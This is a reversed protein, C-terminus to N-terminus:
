DAPRMTVGGLRIRRLGGIARTGAIITDAGCHLAERMLREAPDGHGLIHCDSVLGADRLPQFWDGALGQARKHQETTSPGIGAPIEPVYAVTVRAGLRTATAATWTVAAAAGASGDVAVLMHVPSSESNWSPVVALPGQIHHALYVATSGGVLDDFEHHEHRGVIILEVDRKTAESLLAPGCEGDLVMAEYAIGARRVPQCWKEVQGRTRDHAADWGRPDLPDAVYVTAILLSDVGLRGAWGVAWSLASAGSHSGDVGVLIATM